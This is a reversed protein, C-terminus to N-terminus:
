EPHLMGSHRQHDERLSTLLNRAEAALLHCDCGQRGCPEAKVMQEFYDEPLAAVVNALVGGMLFAKFAQPHSHSAIKLLIVVLSRAKGIDDENTPIV